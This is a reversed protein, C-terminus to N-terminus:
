SISQLSKFLRVNRRKGRRLFRGPLCGPRKGKPLSEVMIYENRGGNLGALFGYKM